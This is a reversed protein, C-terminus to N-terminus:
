CLLVEDYTCGPNSDAGGFSFQNYFRLRTLDWPIFGGNITLSEWVTNTSLDTITVGVTSGTLIEVHVAYWINLAPYTSGIAHLTGDINIHSRQAADFAKERVPIFAMALNVGARLEIIPGDDPKGSTTMLDMRFRFDIKTTGLTTISRYASSEFGTSIQGRIGLSAGYTDATNWNFVDFPPSNDTITYPTAGESFDEYFGNACITQYDDSVRITEEVYAISVPRMEVTIVNAQEGTGRSCVFGAGTFNIVRVPIPPFTAASAVPFGAIPVIAYTM